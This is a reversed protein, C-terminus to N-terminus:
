FCDSRHRGQKDLGKQCTILTGFKLVNVAGTIYRQYTQGSEKHEALWDGKKATEMEEFLDPDTTVFYLIYSM